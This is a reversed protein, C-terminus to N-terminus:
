EVVLELEADRSETVLEIPDGNRALGGVVMRAFVGERPMVCDGAQYYLTYSFLRPAMGEATGSSRVSAGAPLAPPPLQCPHADGRLGRGAALEGCHRDQKRAGKQEVICAATVNGDM